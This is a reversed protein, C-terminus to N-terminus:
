EQLEATVNDSDAAPAEEPPTERDIREVSNGAFYVTIWHKEYPDKRGQRVYYIYDWREEHFPDDVMPSGLLFRVQKRTMGIAIQEVKDADVLNGQQVTLRYVCGSLLLTTM